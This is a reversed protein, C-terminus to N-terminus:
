AAHPKAPLRFMYRLVDTARPARYSSADPGANPTLPARDRLRSLAECTLPVSREFLRALVVPMTDGPQRDVTAQAVIAGTDVGQDVVHITAGFRSEGNVFQWFVPWAGRYAPLPSLHRNIVAVAPAQLIPGRLIESTQNLLVDVREDVLHAVFSASNASEITRVPIGRERCVDALHHRTTGLGTAAAWDSAKWAVLRAWQRPAFIVLSLLGLALTRRPRLRGPRAALVAVGVIVPRCQDMVGRLYPVLHVPEDVAVIYVRM